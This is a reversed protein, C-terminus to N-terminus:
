GRKNEESEIPQVDLPSALMQLPARCAICFKADRTNTIGCEDCDWSQLPGSCEKCFAADIDNKEDCHPCTDSLTEIEEVLASVEDEDEAPHEDIAVPSLRKKVGSISPRDSTRPPVSEASLDESDVPDISESPQESTRLSVASAPTEEEASGRGGVLSDLLVATIAGGLALPAALELPWGAILLAGGGVLVGGVVFVAAGGGLLASFPRGALYGLLSTAAFGHLLEEM